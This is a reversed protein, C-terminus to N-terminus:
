RRLHGESSYTVYNPNFLTRGSVSLNERTLDQIERDMWVSSVQVVKRYKSRLTESYSSQSILVKGM